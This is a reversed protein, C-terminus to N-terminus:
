WTQAPPLHEIVEDIRRRTGATTETPLDGVPFFGTEVIEHDPRRPTPQTFRRVVFVAVHDRRFGRENLFVGHLCPAEAIQINGEEVLERELSTQLTEGVEVGGGPMHWGRVYSHRVLFVRDDADLVMGRVGLTMGRAFRAYVLYLRQVPRLLSSGTPEDDAPLVTM